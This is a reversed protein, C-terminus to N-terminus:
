TKPKAILENFRNIKAILEDDSCNNHPNKQENDLTYIGLHKGLNELAKIKDYLKIQIEEIEIPFGAEKDFITRTRRKISEICDKQDDTLDEFEKLSIWTNHLHAISSFAIKRFENVVNEATVEVRQKRDNILESIRTQIDIKTLLNNAITRATHESYGTRIAAQAGNFDVIYERCFIEQKDNLM